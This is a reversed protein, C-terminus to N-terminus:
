AHQAEGRRPQAAQGACRHRGPDLRLRSGPGPTVAPAPPHSRRTPTILASCTPCSLDRALVSCPQRGAIDGYVTRPGHGPSSCTGQGADGPWLRCSAKLTEMGAQGRLALEATRAAAAAESAEKRAAQAAEKAAVLLGKEKDVEKQPGFSPRPCSSLVLPFAPLAAHACTRM